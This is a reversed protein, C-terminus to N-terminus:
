GSRTPAPRSVAQNGSIQVAPFDRGNQYYLANRVSALMDYFSRGRPRDPTISLLRHSGGSLELVLPVTVTLEPEASPRRGAPPRDTKEANM